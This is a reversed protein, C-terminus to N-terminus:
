SLRGPGFIILKGKYFGIPQLTAPGHGWVIDVGADILARYLEVRGPTDTLPDEPFEPGCHVSVIQNQCFLSFPHNNNSSIPKLLM